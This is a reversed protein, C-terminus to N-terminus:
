WRKIAELILGANKALLFSGLIMTLAFMWIQGALIPDWETATVVTCSPFSVQPYNIDSSVSFSSASVSLRQLHWFGDTAKYFRTTYGVTSNDHPQSSYFVDQAESQSQYCVDGVRAGVASADQIFGFALWAILLTPILKM